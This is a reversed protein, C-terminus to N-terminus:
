FKRGRPYRFFPRSKPWKSNKAFTAFCLIVEIEKVTLSLSIEDFNEIGLSTYIDIKPLNKFFAAM